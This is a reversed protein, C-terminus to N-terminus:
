GEHPASGQTADTSPAVKAPAANRAEDAVNLWWIDFWKPAEVPVLLGIGAVLLTALLVRGPRSGLRVGVSHWVGFTVLAGAVLVLPTVALLLTTNLKVLFMLVVALAIVVGLMFGLTYDTRARRYVMHQLKQAQRDGPDLTLLKKAIRATRNSRGHKASWDAEDRLQGEYDLAIDVEPVVKLVPMGGEPLLEIFACRFERTTDGGKSPKTAHETAPKDGSAKSRRSSFEPAGPLTFTLRHVAAERISVSLARIKRQDSEAARLQQAMKRLLPHLAAPFLRDVDNGRLFPEFVERRKVRHQTFLDLLELENPAQERPWVLMEVQPTRHQHLEVYQIRSKDSDPVYRFTEPLRYVAQRNLFDLPLEAPCNWANIAEISLPTAAMREDRHMAEGSRLIRSEFLIVLQFGYLASTSLAKPQMVAAAQPFPHERRANVWAGYAERVRGLLLQGEPSELPIGETREDFRIAAGPKTAITQRTVAADMVGSAVQTGVVAAPLDGSTVDMTDHHARATSKGAQGSPTPPAKMAGSRGVMKTAGGVGSVGTAGKAAKGKGGPTKKKKLFGGGGIGLQEVLDKPLSQAVAQSMTAVTAADDSGGAEKAMTLAVQRAVDEPTLERAAKMGSEAQKRHWDEVIQRAIRGAMEGLVDPSMQPPAAAAAAQAGRAMAEKEAQLREIEAQQRLKEMEDRARREAEAQAQKARVEADAQARKAAEAEKRAQEADKRAQEEIQKVRVQAQEELQKMRMQAEALEKNARERDAAAEKRAQAEAAALQKRAAEMQAQEAKREAERRKREAEREADLRKQEEALRSREEEMMKQAARMAAQEAIEEMSPGETSESADALDDEDMAFHMTPGSEGTYKVLLVASDIPVHSSSEEPDGMNMLELEASDDAFAMPTVDSLDFTPFADAGGSSRPMPFIPPEDGGDMFATMEAPDPLDEPPEAIRLVLEDYRKELGGVERQAKKGEAEDLKGLVAVIGNLCKGIGERWHHRYDDAMSPPFEHYLTLESDLAKGLSIVFSDTGRTLSERMATLRAHYDKKDRASVGGQVAVSVESLGSYADKHDH